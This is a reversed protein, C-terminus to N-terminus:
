DEDTEPTREPTARAGQTEGPKTRYGLGLVHTHFDVAEDLDPVRLAMHGVRETIPM